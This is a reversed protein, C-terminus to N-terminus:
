VVKSQSCADDSRRNMLKVVRVVLQEVSSCGRKSARCARRTRVVGDVLGSQRREVSSPLLETGEYGTLEVRKGEGQGLM